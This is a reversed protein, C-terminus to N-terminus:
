RKKEGEHLEASWEAEGDESVSVPLVNARPLPPAPPVRPM